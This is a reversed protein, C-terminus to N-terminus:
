GRLKLTSPADAKSLPFCISHLLLSLAGATGIDLLYDGARVPTPEFSLWESNLEAGRTRSGSIAQAARVCALHQAMLGAKPRKKRINQLEFPRQTLLSLTLASRLIQGGGASGDLRILPESM